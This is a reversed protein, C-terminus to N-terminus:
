KLQISGSATVVVQSSGPEVAPQAVGRAAAFAVPRPPGEGGTALDIQRISFGSAKMADRVLAARANFAAIAEAILADEAARRAERSLGISLGRLLLTQQLRGLLRATEGFDTSEVRLEQSVRWGDIRGERYLPQTQYGASHPKVSPFERAVALAEKMTRNVRDALAVPDAGSAEAALLAVMQDNAIERSAQAQLVVVDRLTEQAQAPLLLLAAALGAARAAKRRM